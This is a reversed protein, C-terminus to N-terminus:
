IRRVRFSCSVNYSKNAPAAGSFIGTFNGSIFQGMNGYETIKVQIPATIKMSDAVQTPLFHNLVQNTGLGMGLTNFAMTSGATFNRTFTYLHYLSNDRGTALTDTPYSFTYNQGNITYTMFQQTTTGCAQITGLQNTGANLVLNQSASQQLGKLDEAILTVKAPLECLQTNFSINGNQVPIRQAFDGSKLILYGSTVASMNCDTLLGTVSVEINSTNISVKGLSISNNNTNLSRTYIPNSCSGNAFVQLMLQDNAPIAGSTYGSTDTYGYGVGNQDNMRSIKVMVNKLADGKQNFFQANFNVFESPRDCNWYSFHGVEGKYFNGSKIAVGEEVWLGKKEDLHWLPISAPASVLQASQIPMTLQAKTGPKLNLQQGSSGNLEVATMGFSTLVRMRMTSNLGRLDGPLLRDVSPDLPNILYASVQVRGTYLNGNSADIVSGAPITIALGNSLSVMGGAVSEFSGALLKPMMQVRFFAGQGETAMFTKFAKFYGPKEITLVAADRVVKLQQFQFYGYKDTTTTSNQLSVPAGAVPNGNEDTVFGSVLKVTATSALDIFPETSDTAQSIEKNCSINISLLLFVALLVRIFPKSFTLKPNM